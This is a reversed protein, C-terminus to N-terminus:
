VAFFCDVTIVTFLAQLSAYHSLHLVQTTVKVLEEALANRTSELSTQISQM